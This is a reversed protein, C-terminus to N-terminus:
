ACGIGLRQAQDTDLAFMFRGEHQNGAVALVGHRVAKTAALALIAADLQDLSMPGGPMEVGLDAAISAVIPRRTAIAEARRRKPALAASPKSLRFQLDPYSEFAAVGLRELARYTAFGAIMFRTFIAGGMPGLGTAGDANTILAGFLEQAIAVLYPKCRPDRACRAFYALPPTPFM